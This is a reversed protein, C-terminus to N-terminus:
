RTKCLTRLYGVHSVLSLLRGHQVGAFPFLVAWLLSMVSCVAQGFCAPISKSPIRQSAHTTTVLGEGAKIISATAAEFTRCAVCPLQGWLLQGWSSEAALSCRPRGGARAWYLCKEFSLSVKPVRGRSRPSACRGHSPWVTMSARCLNGVIWPRLCCGVELKAKASALPLLCSPCGWLIPLAPCLGQRRTGKLPRKATSFHM